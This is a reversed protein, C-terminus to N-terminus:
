DTGKTGDLLDEMDIGLNKALQKIMKVNEEKECNLLKM